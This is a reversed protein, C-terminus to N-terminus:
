GILGPPGLAAQSRQGSNNGTHCNAHSHNSGEFSICWYCDLFCSVIKSFCCLIGWPISKFLTGPFVKFTLPTLKWSTKSRALPSPCDPLRTNQIISKGKSFIHDPYAYFLGKAPVAGKVLHNAIDASESASQIM